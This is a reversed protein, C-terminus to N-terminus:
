LKAAFDKIKQDDIKNIYESQKMTAKIILREAANAKKPDFIGQLYAKAKVNQLLQPPFNKEFADAEEAFGVLFVGRTKECLQALNKNIFAKAEKRIAGAYIGSGIVIHEFDALNPASQEKLNFTTADGLCDAIKQAIEGAAGYKTAYLVLTKM